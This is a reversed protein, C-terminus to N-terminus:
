LRVLPCNRCIESDTIDGDDEDWEDLYKCYKDCIEQKIEEIKESITQMRIGRMNTVGDQGVVGRYM